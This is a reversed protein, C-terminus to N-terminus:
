RADAAFMMQHHKQHYKRFYPFLLRTVMYTQQSLEIGTPPVFGWDLGTWSVWFVFPNQTKKDM